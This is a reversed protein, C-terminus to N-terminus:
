EQSLPAGWPQAATLPLPSGQLGFSHLGLMIIFSLLISTVLPQYRGVQCAGQEVVDRIHGAVM